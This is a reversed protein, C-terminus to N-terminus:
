KSGRNPPEAPKAPPTKPTDAETTVGEATASPAETGQRRALQAYYGPRTHRLHDASTKGTIWSRDMPYVDPDFVVTYLHWILIASAALIAEYFHLATAADSVWKPLYRLAINNFWLVFGTTAMVVTGWLFALYEIKEVYSFKGFTPRNPSLGLNYLLMNKMDSLDCLRPKMERLIVRDQRVLILHLIHYGLSALLVVGAIRHLTGRFAFWREFALVPQAWWSEPYKLAFGTVV